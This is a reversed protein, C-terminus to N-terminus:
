VEEVYRKMKSFVNEWSYEEFFEDRPVPDRYNKIKDVIRESFDKWNDEIYLFPETYKNILG